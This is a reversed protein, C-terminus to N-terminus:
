EEFSDGIAVLATDDVFGAGHEGPRYPVGLLGAGYFLYLILSMPDGQPIGNLVPIPASEYGDFK